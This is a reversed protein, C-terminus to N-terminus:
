EELPINVFVAGGLSKVAAQIAAVGANVDSEGAGVKLVVPNEGDNGQWGDPADALAVVLGKECNVRLEAVRRERSEDQWLQQSDIGARRLEHCIREVFWDAKSYLDAITSASKFRDWTTYIFTISRHAPNLIPPDVPRLEDLQLKYYLQNARKHDPQDPLLDVRRVLEHGTRRAYYHIGAQGGKFYGSLYFAIYEIEFDHKRSVVGVLVRDEPYM